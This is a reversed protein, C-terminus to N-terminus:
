SFKANKEKPFKKFKLKQKNFNELNINNTLINHKLSKVRKSGGSVVWGDITAIKMKKTYAEAARACQFAAKAM